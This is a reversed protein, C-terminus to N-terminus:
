DLLKTVISTFHHEFSVLYCHCKIHVCDKLALAILCGSEPFDVKILSVRSGTGRGLFNVIHIFPSGYFVGNRVDMGSTETWDLVSPDLGNLCYIESSPWAEHWVPDSFIQVLRVGRDLPVEVLLTM